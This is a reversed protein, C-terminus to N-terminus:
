YKLPLFYSISLNPSRIAVINIDKINTLKDQPSILPLPTFRYQKIKRKNELNFLKFKNKLDLERQLIEIEDRENIRKDYKLLAIFKTEIKFEPMNERIISKVFNPPLIFNRFVSFRKSGNALIMYKTPLKLFALNLNKVIIKMTEKTSEKNINYYDSLEEITFYCKQKRIVSNHITYLINKMNKGMRPFFKSTRTEINSVKCFPSEVNEIELKWFYQTMRILDFYNLDM